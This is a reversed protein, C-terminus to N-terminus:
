PPTMGRLLTVATLRQRRVGGGSVSTPSASRWSPPSRKRTSPHRTPRSCRRSRADSSSERISRTRTRRSSSSSGGCSPHRTRRTPGPASSRRRRSRHRRRRMRRGPRARGGRERAGHSGVVHPRVGRRARVAAPPVVVIGARPRAGDERVSREAERERRRRHSRVAPDDHPRCRDCAREGRCRDAQHIPRARGLRTARPLLRPHRRRPTEPSNRTSSRPSTLAPASGAAPAPSWWPALRRTQTPRKSRM